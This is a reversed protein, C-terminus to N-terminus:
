EESARGRYDWNIEGGERTVVYKYPGHPCGGCDKGCPVKKIVVAGDAQDDEEVDVLQEDEDALEEEDLNQDELADLHERRERAYREIAALTNQDQRDIGEVIYNPIREPPALDATM